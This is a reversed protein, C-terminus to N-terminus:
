TLCPKIQLTGRAGARPYRYDIWILIARLLFLRLITLPISSGVNRSPLLLLNLPNFDPSYPPLPLLIHGAPELLARIQEKNHFRANDTVVISPVTLRPLLHGVIWDNVTQTNCSQSFLHPALWEKGRQAMILNQTKRNTASIDGFVKQGRYSWGHPRYSTATFGSEDFYVVNQSGYQSILERLPRLYAM